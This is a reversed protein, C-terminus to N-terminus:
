SNVSLTNLHGEQCTWTMTFKSPDWFYENSFSDCKACPKQGIIKEVGLLVPLCPKPGIFENINPM